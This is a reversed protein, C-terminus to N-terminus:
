KAKKTHTLEEKMYPNKYDAWKDREKNENEGPMVEFEDYKPYFTKEHDQPKDQPGEYRGQFGM